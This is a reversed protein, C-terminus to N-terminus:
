SSSSHFFIFVSWSSATLCQFASHSFSAESPTEFFFQGLSWNALSFWLEWWSQLSHHIFVIHFIFIFIFSITHLLVRCSGPVVMVSDWPVDFTVNQTESNVGM